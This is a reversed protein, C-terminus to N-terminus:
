TLSAVQKDEDSGISSPASTRPAQRRGRTTAIPEGDRGEGDMWLCIVGHDCVSGGERGALADM